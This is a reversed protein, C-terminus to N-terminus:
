GVKLGGFCAYKLEVYEDIGYKSGERGFGSEKVGGFPALETSILGENIGVMGFQLEELVHWIRNVDRAYFYAMLGYRTDNALRIVEAEDKFRFVPAIPGFAEEQALRMPAQMGSLVTPEFWTGGLAHPKGGTEIRAGRDVADGVLEAVKAVAKANILPGQVVEPAAGDGVKLSAVQETLKAVFADHIGDQVYIRNTCVCTQGSNRFKSAIAGAVALDLDADDFVIFPANGGLELSLKKLTDACQRMLLKGVATSGTFSLKRIVPHECLLRGIGAADKSPVINLVGAPIGAQMALEGIALATLPTEESPKVVMTCGAALAAAAKRTIMALPFNWPTIAACVGIPQKLVLFRRDRGASPIVDGCVRKAEESFWDVFSAGFAVEGRAEYLPKGQEATILWALDETHATILDFWARLLKAREKAPRQRWDVHAREAALIAREVDAAALDAVRALVAGTAPNRVEFTAGSDAGAWAGDIFAQDHLLALTM